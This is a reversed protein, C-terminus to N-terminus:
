RGGAKDHEISELIEKWRGQVKVIREVTERFVGKGGDCKTHAKAEALVDEAADAPAISMGVLRMVPLDFLDDGIYATEEASIGKEELIEYLFGTKRFHGGKIPSVGFPELRRKVLEAVNGTIAAMEIGAFKAMVFGFGDRMSFAKMAVGKEDYYATGDTLVGDVDTIILRIKKLQEDLSPDHLPKAM